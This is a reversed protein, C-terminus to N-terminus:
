IYFFLLSFFNFNTEFIQVDFKDNQVELINQGLLIRKNIRKRKEQVGCLNFCYCSLLVNTSYCRWIFTVKYAVTTGGVGRWSQTTKKERETFLEDEM